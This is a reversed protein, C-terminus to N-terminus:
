EKNKNNGPNVIEPYFVLAACGAAGADQGLRSPVLEEFRRLYWPSGMELLTRRVPGLLVEGALSLGGGLVIRDPMFIHLYSALAIGIFRGTQAFIAGAAEDGAAAAEAADRATLDGAREYVERLRASSGM